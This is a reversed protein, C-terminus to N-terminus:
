RHVVSKKLLVGGFAAFHDPLGIVQGFLRERSFHAAVPLREEPMGESDSLDNGVFDAERGLAHGGHEQVLRDPLPTGIHVDAGQFQVLADIRHHVAQVLDGGDLGLIGAHGDELQRVPQLHHAGQGDERLRVAFPLDQLGEHEVDRQRVLQAQVVHLPLHLVDVQAISLRFM